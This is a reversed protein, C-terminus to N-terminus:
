SYYWRIEIKEVLDKVLAVSTFWNDGTINRTSLFHPKWLEVTDYHELTMVDRPKTMKVLHPMANLMYSSKFDCIMMIRWGYKVPKNAICMRFGCRGRFALLQDYITINEGPCYHQKCNNIFVECFNAWPLIPRGVISSRPETFWRYGNRGRLHKKISVWFQLCVARRVALLLLHM